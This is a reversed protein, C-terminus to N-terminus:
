PVLLPGGAKTKPQAEFWTRPAAPAPLAVTGALPDAIATWLASRLSAGAPTDADAAFRQALTRRMPARAAAGARAQRFVLPGPPQWRVPQEVSAGDAGIVIDKYQFQSAVRDAHSFALGAEGITLGADMAEF